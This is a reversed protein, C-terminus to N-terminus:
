VDIPLCGVVRDVVRETIWDAQIDAAVAAMARIRIGDRDLPEEDVLCGIEMLYEQLEGTKRQQWQPVNRDKLGDIILGADGNVAESLESLPQIFKDSVCGSDQLEARGVPRGRGIRWARCAAEILNATASMHEFQDDDLGLVGPGGYQRLTRLQGWTSVRQCLMRHLLDVNETVHWLHVDDATEQRPDFNAVGLVKGYRAHSQGAPAPPEPAEIPAIELPAADSTGQQRIVRMDKIQHDIGRESLRAAWKGVEDHQATFYFVQRGDEAIDIVTDIIVKARSDDSTGLAEDMLLPLKAKEDRELFALRVSMLLQVREGTSLRDVTRAPGSGSRAMFVPPDARDDLELHLQGNTFMVFLENARAFVQPRSREVAVARVWKVLADGTLSAGAQHRADELATRAADLERLAESLEYGEKAAEVQQETKAISQLHEDRSSADVENQDIERRIQDSDMELLSLDDVLLSRRDERITEADGLEGALAVYAGHEALWADLVADDGDGLGVGQFIQHRRSANEELGPVIRERLTTKADERGALAQRHRNQRDALDDILVSAAQASDAADYEYTQLTNNIGAVIERHQNELDEILKAAAEAEDHCRQWRGLNEIVQPFWEDSLRLDIGLRRQLELRENELAAQEQELEGAESELEDLKQRREHERAAMGAVRILKRVTEAVAEVEWKSPVPLKLAEYAQRHVARADQPQDTGRRVRWDWVLLGAVVAITVLLLIWHHLAALVIGLVALLSVAAAFPLSLGRGSPSSAPSALWHSLAVIGDPIQETDEPLDSETADRSLWRRREDLVRRAADVHTARRAFSGLEPLEATAKLKALQDADLHESLRHRASQAQSVTKIHHQRQQRIDTEITELKQRDGRLSAITDIALGSEPLNLTELEQEAARLRQEAATQEETLTRRDSALQDLQERENGKLCCCGAPLQGLRSALAQCREDAEHHELAKRLLALREQAATAESVKRELDSLTSAAEEIQRQRQRAVQVAAEADRLRQLEKRPSAPRERYRLRQAEADVDYGGQSADVILKAFDANDEDILEHLSLRYRHRQEPPGLDAAVGSEGNCSAEPHGADVDVRWHDGGDVFGGGVTPRDLGTRGPWLIEQIVRATTSKGSGNPGHILNVRPSLGPIEFGKGHDIGIARHIEVVEFHVARQNM